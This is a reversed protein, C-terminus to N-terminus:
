GVSNINFTFLKSEYNANKSDILSSISSLTSAPYGEKSVLLFAVQPLAASTCGPKIGSNMSADLMSYATSFASTHNAVTADTTLNAILTSLTGINTSNAIVISSFGLLSSSGSMKIVGVLIQNNLTSLLVSAVSKVWDIRSSLSMSQDINLIIIVYIQTSVAASYWPRLRPDYDKCLNNETQRM